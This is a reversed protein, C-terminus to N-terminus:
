SWMALEKCAIAANEQLQREKDREAQTDVLWQAHKFDMLTPMRHESAIKAQLDAVDANTNCWNNYVICHHPKETALLPHLDQYLSDLRYYNNSAFSIAMTIVFSLSSSLTITKLIILHDYETRYDALFFATMGMFLALIGFSIVSWISRTIHRTFSNTDTFMLPFFLLSIETNLMTQYLWLYSTLDITSYAVPMMILLLILCSVWTKFLATKQKYSSELKTEIEQTSLIQHEM